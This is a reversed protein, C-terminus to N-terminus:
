HRIGATYRGHPMLNMNQKVYESNVLEVSYDMWQFVNEDATVSKDRCGKDSNLAGEIHFRLQVSANGMATLMAVTM